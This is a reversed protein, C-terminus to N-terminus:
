EGPRGDRHRAYFEGFSMDAPKEVFTERLADARHGFERELQLNEAREEADLLFELFRRAIGVENEPLADILHHLEEKALSM